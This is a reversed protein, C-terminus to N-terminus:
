LHTGVLHGIAYTIAMSAASLLVTRLAAPGRPAGGLQAGVTGLVALAVSRFLM